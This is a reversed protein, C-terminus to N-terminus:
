HRRLFFNSSKSALPVNRGRGGTMRLTSPEHGLIRVLELSPRVDVLELNVVVDGQFEQGPVSTIFDKNVSNCSDKNNSLKPYPYILTYTKWRIYSSKRKGSGQRNARGVSAQRPASIRMHEASFTYMIKGPGRLKELKDTIQLYPWLTGSHLVKLHGQYTTTVSLWQYGIVIITHLDPAQPRYLLCIIIMM